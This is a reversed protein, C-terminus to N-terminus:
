RLFNFVSEDVRPKVRWFSGSGDSRVWAKTEINYGFRYYKKANRQPTLAFVSVWGNNDKGSIYILNGDMDEAFRGPNIGFAVPFAINLGNEVIGLAIPPLYEGLRKRRLAVIIHKCLRGIDRPPLRCHIKECLPNSCSYDLLNVTYIERSTTAEIEIARFSEDVFKPLSQALVAVEFASMQETVGSSFYLETELGCHPCAVSGPEESPNELEHELQDGCHQCYCKLLM